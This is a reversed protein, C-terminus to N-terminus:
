SFFGTSAAWIALGAVVALLGGGTAILVMPLRSKEKEPKAVVTATSRASVANAASVPAIGGDDKRSPRDGLAFDDADDDVADILGAHGGTEGLSKPLDVSGTIFLEGTEGLPGSLQGTHGMDPLILAATGGTTRGATEQAVARTILDDFDGADEARGSARVAPDDFVSGPEDLPAIDPFSYGKAKVPEDSPAREEDPEDSGDVEAEPEEDLEDAEAEHSEVVPEAEVAEADAEAEDAVIEVEPEEAGAPEDSDEDEFLSSLEDVDDATEASLAEELDAVSFAQTQVLRSERYEAIARERLARIERRTRETGDPNLPDIEPEFDIEIEAEDITEAPEAVEVAQVAEAVAPAPTEDLAEAEAMELLRRERRSLPRGEEAQSM